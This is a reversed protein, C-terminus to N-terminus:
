AGDGGEGGARKLATALRARITCDLAGQDALRIKGTEVGYEELVERATALIAEGFQKKVPSEIKIELRGSPEVLVLLDSSELTGAQAKKKLEM